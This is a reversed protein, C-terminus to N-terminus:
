RIVKTAAPLKLARRKDSAAVDFSKSYIPSQFASVPPLMHIEIKCALM